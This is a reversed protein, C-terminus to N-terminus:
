KERILDPNDDMKRMSRKIAEYSVPKFGNVDVGVDLSKGAPPLNGHSHGYLMWSGHHSGDWVRMSYHCLVIRRKGGPADDDPISVTLLDHTSSSYKQVVSRCRKDHNGWVFVIDKTPSRLFFEKASPQDWSLDGLFYVTDNEEVADLFNGILTKNMEDVNRFPRNCHRIINAHSLHYDATFWCTM